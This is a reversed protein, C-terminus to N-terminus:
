PSSETEIPGHPSGHIFQQMYPNDSDWVTHAKGFFQIQGKHLLAVNDVYKFIDTNHSIIVSTLKMKEQMTYMLEHVIRTTIPDLGTTPEDYLIVSPESVLTRALGVRKKMGGSLQDPYKTLISQPLNVLKLKEQIISLAKEEPMGHELLSLAINEFVNLSDLLAASQFVYGCQKFIKHLENEHLDTVEIGNVMLSGETPQILGIIMKLLISKGQGSQGIICTSEGTPIELTIGDIVNPGTDFQKKINYLSIM